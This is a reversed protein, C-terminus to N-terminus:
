VQRLTELSAPTSSVGVTPKTSSKGLPLFVSRSKYETFYLLPGPAPKLLSPKDKNSVVFCVFIM